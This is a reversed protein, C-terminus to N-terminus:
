GMEPSRRADRKRSLIAHHASRLEEFLVRRHGAPQNTQGAAVASDFEKRAQQGLGIMEMNQRQRRRAEDLRMQGEELKQQTLQENTRDTRIRQGLSYGNALGSAFSGFGVGWGAM